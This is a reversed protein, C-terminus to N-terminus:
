IEVPLGQRAWEAYSGDYLRVAYGSHQLALYGLAARPGTRCYAVIQDGSIIGAAALLQQIKEHGALVTHPPGVLDQWVINVAQPIHGPRGDLDREGTYEERSRFDILKVNSNARLDDLTVRVQPNV